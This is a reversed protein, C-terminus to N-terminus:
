DEVEPFEESLIHAVQQGLTPADITAANWVIDWDIDYYREVCMSGTRALGTWDIEPHRQRTQESVRLASEGMLTLQFLVASSRLDDKALVDKSAGAVFTAVDTSAQKIVDLYPGDNM